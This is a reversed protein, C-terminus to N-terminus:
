MALTELDFVVSSISNNWVFKAFKGFTSKLLEPYVSVPVGLLNELQQKLEEEDLRSFARFYLLARSDVDLDISAVYYTAPRRILHLITRCWYLVIEIFNVFVVSLILFTLEVIPSNSSSSGSSRVTADPPKYMKWFKEHVKYVTIKKANEVTFENNYGLIVKKENPDYELGTTEMLKLALWRFFNYLLVVIALFRLLGSGYYWLASALITIALFTLTDPRTDKSEKKIRLKKIGKKESFLIKM